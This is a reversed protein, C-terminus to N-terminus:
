VPFVVFYLVLAEVAALLARTLGTEIYRFVILNLFSMGFMVTILFLRLINSGGFSVICGIMWWHFPSKFVCQLLGCLAWAILMWGIAAYVDDKKMHKAFSVVLM